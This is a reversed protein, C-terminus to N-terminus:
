LAECEECCGRMDSELIGGGLFFDLVEGPLTDAVHCLTMIKPTKPTPSASISAFMNSVSNSLLDAASATTIM